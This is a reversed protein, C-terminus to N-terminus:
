GGSAHAAHDAKLLEGNIAEAAKAGEAAAVIVFQADRSADGIVYLGPVTTSQERSSKVAGDRMFECGFREPLPSRQVQGTNFFLARRPLLADNIFCVRELIGERGELRAIRDERVTIDLRRLDDRQEPRLRAAGDTLLVVDRSWGTLELALEYGRTGRGYVALPQDRVEWGDCYPCHFVSRGYLADIGEIRPVQDVVGTALVLIRGAEARGDALTVQFGGEVPAADTVNVDRTDVDEYRCIEERALRLFEGPLIGDRTLYGHLGHSRENRPHGADCLLVRRCARALVLAVSLGAPGGGVIIVDYNM